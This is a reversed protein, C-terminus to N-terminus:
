FGFGSVRFRISYDVVMISSLAMDFVKLAPFGLQKVARLCISRVRARPCTATKLPGLPDPLVVRSPMIPQM